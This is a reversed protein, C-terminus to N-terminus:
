KSGDKDNNTNDSDTDTNNSNKNKNNDDSNTDSNNSNKNNNSSNGNKSDTSSSVDITSSIFSRMSAIGKKKTDLARKMFEELEEDQVISMNAHIKKFSVVETNLLERLDLAEFPALNTNGM